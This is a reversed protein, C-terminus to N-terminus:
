RKVQKEIVSIIHTQDGQPHSPIDKDYKEKKNPPVKNCIISSFVENLNSGELRYYDPIPSAKYYVQNGIAFALLESGYFLSLLGFRGLYNRTYKMKYWNNVRYSCVVSENSVLDSVIRGSVKTIAGHLYQYNQSTATTSYNKKEITPDHANSPIGITREQDVIFVREICPMGLSLDCLAVDLVEPLGMGSVFSIKALNLGRIARSYELLCIPTNKSNQCFARALHKPIPRLKGELEYYKHTVYKGSTDKTCLIENGKNDKVMCPVPYSPVTFLSDGGNNIGFKSAFGKMNEMNSILYDAVPYDLIPWQENPEGEFLIVDPLCAYEPRNILAGNDYPRKRYTSSPCINDLLSDIDSQCYVGKVVYANSLQLISYNSREVYKSVLQNIYEKRDIDYYAIIYGLRRLAYIISKRNSETPIIGFFPLAFEIAARMKRGSVCGSSDALDYLVQILIDSGITKSGLNNQLHQKGTVINKVSKDDVPSNTIEGWGNMHYNTQLGGWEFDCSVQESVVDKDGERIILDGSLHQSATPSLRFYYKNNVGKILGDLLKFDQGLQNPRWYVCQGESLAVSFWSGLENLQFTDDAKVRNRREATPASYSQVSYVNYEQELIDSLYEWEQEFTKLRANKKIFVYYDKGPVPAEVQRYIDDSIHEFYFRSGYEATGEGVNSISFVNGEYRLQKSPLAALPVNEAIYDSSSPEDSIEFVGQKLALNFPINYYECFVSFSHSGDFDFYLEYGWHAIKDQVDNGCNSFKKGFNLKGRLINKVYPINEEKIIIRTLENKGAKELAPILINNVFFSYSEYQWHLNNVELFDVFDERMSKKLVLHYKIRSIHRQSGCIMRDPNFCPHDAHLQQLLPDILMGPNSAYDKGLYERAKEKIQTHNAGQITALLMIACLMAFYAPYGDAKLPMLREVLSNWTRASPILTKRDGTRDEWHLKFSQFEDASLLTCSLFQHTWNQGEEHKIRNIEAVQTLVTEDIYLVTNEEKTPFFYRWLASNWECYKNITGFM